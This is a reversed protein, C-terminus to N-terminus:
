KLDGLSKQTNQGVEVISNDPYDQNEWLNGM